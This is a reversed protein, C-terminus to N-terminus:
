NAKTILWLIRLCVYVSSQDKYKQTHTHPPPPPVNITFPLLYSHAVFISLPNTWGLIFIRDTIVWTTAVRYFKREDGSCLNLYKKKILDSLQTIPGGLKSGKLFRHLLSSGSKIRFIKIQTGFILSPGALKMNHFHALTWWPPSPTV